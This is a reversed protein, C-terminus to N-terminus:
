YYLLISHSLLYKIYEEFLLTNTVIFNKDTNNEKQPIVPASIFILEKGFFELLMISRPIHYHSTIVKINKLNYNKAWKVIEYANDLTSRSVRDLYIKSSIDKNNTLNSLAVKKDVGSIILRKQPYEELLDLGKKVRGKGGTLVAIGDFSYEEKGSKHTENIDYIKRTFDVYGFFLTASLTTFTIIFLYRAM